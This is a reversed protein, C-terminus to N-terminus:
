LDTYIMDIEYELNASEGFQKRDLEKIQEISDFDKAVGVLNWGDDTCRTTDHEYWRYVLYLTKM